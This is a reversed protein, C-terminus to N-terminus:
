ESKVETLLSISAKLDVFDINNTKVDEDTFRKCCAFKAFQRDYPELSRCFEPLWSWNRMITPLCSPCYRQFINIVVIVILVILLPIGACKLTATGAISLGLVTAPLLLFLGVLCLVSFWRYKATVDGMFKAMPIPIRMFPIPYFLLIGTVNFLLHVLAIQLTDHLADPSAAFAALLATTTAGINSGLTLPYVREISIFGVGILPDLASTFVLSSRVVFTMGAGVLMAIYGALWPVYPIEGNIVHKVVNAIHGAIKLVNRVPVQSLKCPFHKGKMVSHLIKVLCVLSGCLITLSIALIILGSTWDEM